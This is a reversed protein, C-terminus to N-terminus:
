SVCLIDHTFRDIIKGLCKVDRSVIKPDNSRPPAVVFGDSPGMGHQPVSPVEDGFDEHDFETGVGDDNARVSSPTWCFAFLAVVVVAVVYVRRCRCWM